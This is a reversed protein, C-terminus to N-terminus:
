EIGTRKGEESPRLQRPSPLSTPLSRLSMCGILLAAPILPLQHKPTLCKAKLESGGHSSLVRARESISLSESHRPERTAPCLNQASCRGCGATIKPFQFISENAACLRRRACRVSGFLNLKYLDVHMPFRESGFRLVFFYPTFSITLLMREVCVVLILIQSSSRM